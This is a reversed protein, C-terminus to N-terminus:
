TSISLLVLAGGRSDPLLAIKGLMWRDLRNGPNAHHYHVVKLGSFHGSRRASSSTVRGIGTTTCGRSDSWRRAVTCSRRLSGRRGDGGDAPRVPSRRRPPSRPSRMGPRFRGGTRPGSDAVSYMTAPIKPARSTPAHAALWCRSSIVSARPSASHRRATGPWTPSAASGGSAASLTSRLAVLAATRVFAAADSGRCGICIVM